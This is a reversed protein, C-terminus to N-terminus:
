IAGGQTRSGLLHAELNELRGRVSGDIVTDGIRVVVGGLIAPDVQTTLIVTKGTLKRVSAALGDTQAPTLAVASTALAEVTNHFEALLERFDRITETVLEERGKRILLQLFSLTTATVRDGFADSAVKNKQEDSVLPQLLVARLYPVDALFREVLTLDEAVAEIIGDRQAVSFLAAAYRKAVRTDKM